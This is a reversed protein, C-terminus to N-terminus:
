RRRTRARGRVPVRTRPPLRRDGRVRRDPRGGQTRALRRLASASGGAVAEADFRVGRRPGPHPQVPLRGGGRVGVSRPARAGQAPADPPALRRASPRGGTVARDGRGVLLGQRRGLGAPDGRAGRAGASRAAGRAVRQDDRAGRGGLPRRAGVLPRQRTRAAARRDAQPADGRRVAPQGRGGRHDAGPRRRPARGIGLLNAILDASQEQSLPELVITEGLTSWDPRTERLDPRATCVLLLPHEASFRTVYELLDLFTPEAWHIDDFVVVLPAQAALIELLRRVAWFTEQIDGARATRASGSRPRSANPSRPGTRPTRSAARAAQRARRGARGDRRDGRGGQGARRGALVHHGRRVAPVPGVAGPRSRRRARRARDGPTVQGARRRRPRHGDPVRARRGGRRVSAASARAGGRSRRAALGAAARVGASGADRRRAPVGAGPRDQGQARAARRARGRRRRPGAPADGRRVRDRGARRDARVAGGRQGHGRDRVDRGRVPRRRRGRRHQDRDQDPAPRRLRARARREPDGLIERMQSAARVARLADDEHVTPVGFVAMVADGIFKEVTGGHQEIASRMEEFYRSM